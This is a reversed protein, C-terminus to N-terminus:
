FDNSRINKLASEFRFFFIGLETSVIGLRECFDLLRDFFMTNHFFLSQTHFTLSSRPGPFTEAFCARFTTLLFKVL